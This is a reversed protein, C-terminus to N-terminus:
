NELPHDERKITKDIKHYFDKTLVIPDPIKLKPKAHLKIQTKKPLSM